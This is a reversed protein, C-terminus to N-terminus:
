RMITDDHCLIRNVTFTLKTSHYSPQLIRNVTFTLKISRYSPQLIKMTSSSLCVILKHVYTSMTLHSFICINM